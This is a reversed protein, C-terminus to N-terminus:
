HTAKELVRLRIEHDKIDADFAANMQNKANHLSEVQSSLDQIKSLLGYYVKAAASFTALMTILAYIALNLASVLDFKM